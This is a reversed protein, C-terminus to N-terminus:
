FLIGRGDIIVFSCSSKNGSSFVSNFNWKVERCLALWELTFEFDSSEVRWLFRASLQCYSELCGQGENGAVRWYFFRSVMFPTVTECPNFFDNSAGWRFALSRSVTSLRYIVRNEM